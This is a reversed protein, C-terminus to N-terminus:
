SARQLESQHWRMYDTYPTAASLACDRWACAAAIEASDDVLVAALYNGDADYEMRLLTRSDFLWYDHTPLGPPWEGAAVPLIRIDEGAAVNPAYSWALEYRLYDTLPETVIHVRQMLKGSAQAARIRAVWRDKAPDHPPAEGALFRRLPEDEDAVYDQLTELRFATHEFGDFLAWYDATGPVLRRGM